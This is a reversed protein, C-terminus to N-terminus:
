PGALREVEALGIRRGAHAGRQLAARDGRDAQEAPGVAEEAVRLHANRQGAEEFSAALSSFAVPWCFRTSSSTVAIFRAASAATGSAFASSTLATLDILTSSARLITVPPSLETVWNKAPLVRSGSPTFNRGM